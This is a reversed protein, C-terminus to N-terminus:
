HETGLGESSRIFSPPPYIDYHHLKRKLGDIKFTKLADEIQLKSKISLLNQISTEKVKLKLDSWNVSLPTRERWKDGGGEFEAVTNLVYSLLAMRLDTQGPVIQHLNVAFIDKISAM